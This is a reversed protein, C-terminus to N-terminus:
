RANKRHLQLQLACGKGVSSYEKRYVSYALTVGALGFSSYASIELLINGEYGVALLVFSLTAFVATLVFTIVTIPKPPNKLRELIKEISM